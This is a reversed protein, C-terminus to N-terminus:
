NGSALFIGSLIRGSHIGMRRASFFVEPNTYTCCPSCELHEKRLGSAVLEAAVAEPLSIHWKGSQPHRVAIRSLPFGEKRFAEYVEEGVEFASQSICPGFAVYVDEPFVGYEKQMTRLTTRAIHNVTGRWGSHAMGIVRRRSDYFFVPLCDATSVCLACSPVDTILADVGDLMRNQLSSDMRLFGEDICRVETGHVQRPIVLPHPYGGLLARLRNTNAAVHAAEDGCFPSCNFSSYAGQSCGGFRTTVFTEVGSLAQLPAPLLLSSFSDGSVLAM